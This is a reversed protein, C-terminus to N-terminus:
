KSFQLLNRDIYKIFLQFIKIVGFFVLKLFIKINLMIPLHSVLKYIFKKNYLFGWLFYKPNSRILFNVRKEIFSIIDIKDYGLKSLMLISSFFGTFQVDFVYRENIVWTSSLSTGNKLFVKPTIYISGHNITNASFLFPETLFLNKQDILKIEEIAKRRIVWASIWMLVTNKNQFIEKIVKKSDNRLGSKKENILKKTDNVLKHNTDYSWIEPNIFISGLEENKKLVSCIENVIGRRFIDDDSVFWIFETDKSSDFLRYLNGVLGNNEENIIVNIWPYQSLKKKLYKKTGDTSNNESVYLSVDYESKNIENIFFTLQRDLEKVRNYTPICISLTKNM